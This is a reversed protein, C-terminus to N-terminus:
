SAATHRILSRVSWQIPVHREDSDPMEDCVEDVFQRFWGIMRVEMESKMESSEKKSSKMRKSREAKASNGPPGEGQIIADM